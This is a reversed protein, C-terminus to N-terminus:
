ACASNAPAPRARPPPRSRQSRAGAGAGGAAPAALVDAKTARGDKGTPAIQAADVGREAALKRVAPGSRALLTAADPPAATQPAPAPAAAAPKIAPAAEPKKAAAKATGEGIRGLLGGVRVNSGEPAAIETLTGASQAALEQTAKDTELEVLPDDPAVSDGVKKLWRAVTVETVSEGVAPVVIDSAM